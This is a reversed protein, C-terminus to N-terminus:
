PNPPDTDLKRNLRDLSEKLYEVRARLDAIERTEREVKLRFSRDPSVSTALIPTAPTRHGFLIGMIRRLGM